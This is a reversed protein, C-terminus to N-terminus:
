WVIVMERVIMDQRMGDLMGDAEFMLREKCRVVVMDEERSSNRWAAYRVRM